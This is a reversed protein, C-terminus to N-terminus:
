TQLECNKFIDDITERKRILQTNEGDLLVEAARPRTNFNHSMSYGYAGADMIAILDDEQVTPFKRDVALRDTNECIPGTFDATLKIHTDPEGVKYIRHYAGYLAPRMLTEMGADLGIFTKYSNKIGTVKTLLICTDGIISKGPEIWLEPKDEHTQEFFRNYINAINGFVQDFDLPLEDEKYPIGFGGGISIYSMQIDLENQLLRVTKLIATILEVFYAPDLIGSGTMCQIGFKSIGKEKALRYANVFKM